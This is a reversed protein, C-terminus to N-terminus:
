TPSALELIARRLTDTASQFHGLLSILARKARLLNLNFWHLPNFAIYSERGKVLGSLRKLKIEKKCNIGVSGPLLRKESVESFDEHM